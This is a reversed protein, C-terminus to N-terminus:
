PRSLQGACYKLEDPSAVGSGVTSMGRAMGCPFWLAKQRKPRSGFAGRVRSIPRVGVTNLHRVGLCAMPSTTTSTVRLRCSKAARSGARM